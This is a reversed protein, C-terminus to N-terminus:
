SVVPTVILKVGEIRVVQVKTGKQIRVNETSRAAWDNGLVEVRGHAALNDIDETVVATQGVVRDANTHTEKNQLFKKVLPRTALLLVLTVVAAILVQLWVPAGCLQAIMGAIGGSLGLPLFVAVTTLTSAVVSTTVEKTGEVCASLRDHGEAAFRYINELVVISNDVIMGVGMAIGGLSMMNLTIGFANMLVFVALICVPMSVSITATAGVRRLFLFVVVAALLVGLFINNLASNVAMNIYDSALYAVTYQVASNKQQLQELAKVVAKSTAVENGGSQKSVQLIVCPTGDVKAIAEPDGTELQVSAVENLRVRGGTPLPLILDAVDDVSRFKANTSVTLTQSGYEVDGAPFLLNEATLMQAIYSNSLGYGAARASDVEVAIQQDVGGSMTVQAVGEVRELAPVVTDEALAQVQTLSDGKLGIVATPLLDSININVIVPDMAGDPLSLMDFKERLKTAAIDLDTGDVYTVQLQSVGDSSSSRVSEVGPVSMVASELPRTVLQEMDSPNAGNYYCIVVAAPAEM